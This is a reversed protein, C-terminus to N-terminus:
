AEGGRESDVIVPAPPNTLGNDLIAKMQAHPVTVVTKEGHRGRAQFQIGNETVRCLKSHGQRVFGKGDVKVEDSM